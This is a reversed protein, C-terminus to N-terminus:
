VKSKGGNSVLRKGNRMGNKMKKFFDPEKVESARFNMKNEFTNSNVTM